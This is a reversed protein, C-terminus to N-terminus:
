HFICKHSHMMEKVVNDDDRSTTILGDLEPIGKSLALVGNVFFVAVSVRFPDGAHAEGWGDLDWEDDRTAPVAENFDPREGVALEAVVENSV